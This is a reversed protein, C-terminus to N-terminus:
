GCVPWGARTHPNGIRLRWKVARYDQELPANLHPMGRGGAGWWTRLTFQYAGFFGNGTALGYRGGSECMRVKLLWGRFPATAQVKKKKAQKHAVRVHCARSNCPDSKAEATGTMAVVTSLVAIITIRM